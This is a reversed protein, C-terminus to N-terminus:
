AMFDRKFAEFIRHYRTRQRDFQEYLLPLSIETEVFKGVEKETWERSSSPEDATLYYRSILRFNESAVSSYETAARDAASLADTLEVLRTQFSDSGEDESQKLDVSQM